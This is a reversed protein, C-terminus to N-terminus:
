GQFKVEYRDLNTAFIVTASNGTHVLFSLVSVSDVIWYGYDTLTDQLKDTRSSNPQDFCANFDGAIVLFRLSM